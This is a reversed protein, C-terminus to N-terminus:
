KMMFIELAALTLVVVKNLIGVFGWKASGFLLLFECSHLEM